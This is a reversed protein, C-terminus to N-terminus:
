SKAKKYNRMYIVVETGSMGNIEVDAKLQDKLVEILRYGFSEGLKQKQSESIGIGNDRVVLRLTSDIEKLSVNIKGNRKDPFAYKLCNSILENTILGIPIVTDVDLNLSAIDTELEIREDYINYSSFLNEILKRFYDQLEVGTLNEEQYLNQHILAMSQVRDQGEQLANLAGKDAVHETQLGLLSSIFQLNNKVRHHIERILIEKEKLAKSIISNQSSIRRYLRYLAFLLITILITATTLIRNTNKSALLAISSKENELNLIAIEQEKKESEYKERLDLAQKELEVNRLSDTYTVYTALAKIAKEKAGLSEYIKFELKHLQSLERLLGSSGKALETATNINTLAENFRSLKKQSQIIGILSNLKQKPSALGKRIEYSREAFELSKKIDNKKNYLNSLNGYIYGLLDQDNEEKGVKLAYLYNEEALDFSDQRMFINAMNLVVTSINNKEGREEYVVLASDYYELAKDYQKLQKYIIGIVIDVSAQQKRLGFRKNLDSAKNLHTMAKEYDAEKRYLNGLKYHARSILTSDLSQLPGEVVKLYLDAADSLKGKKNLINAEHFFFLSQNEKLSSFNIIARASDIYTQYTNLDKNLFTEGTTLYDLAIGIEEDKTSGQAQGNSTSCFSVLAYLYIIYWKSCIINELLSVRSTMRNFIRFVM